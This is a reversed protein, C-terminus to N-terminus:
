TKFYYVLENSLYLKDGTFTAEGLQVNNESFVRYSRSEAIPATSLNQTSIDRRFKNMDFALPDSKRPASVEKHALVNQAPIDLLTMLYKTIEILSQYQERGYKMDPTNTGSLAVGLSMRNLDSDNGWKSEGAHWMLTLWPALQIITGDSFVIAHYNNDAQTDTLYKLENAETAHKSRGSDHIIIYKPKKITGHFNDPTTFSQQLKTPTDVLGRELFLFVQEHEPYSSICDTV